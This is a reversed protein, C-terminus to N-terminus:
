VSGITSWKAAQVTSIDEKSYLTHFLHLLTQISLKQERQSMCQANIPALSPFKSLSQEKHWKQRESSIIWFSLHTEKEEVEHPNDRQAKPCM